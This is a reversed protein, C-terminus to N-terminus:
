VGLLNQIVDAASYHTQGPKLFRKVTGVDDGATILGPEHHRGGARVQGLGINAMLGNCLCMRGVAGEATGGKAVYTTVPEGACRYDIEGENTKYAERLYGLDCIRPREDYTAASSVTTELQVVKFPFGTPSAKPDTKLKPDSGLVMAKYEDRLGSEDCFAFPTGVQIGAAGQELAEKLKEASGYGGALWFPLGLECMKALDVV